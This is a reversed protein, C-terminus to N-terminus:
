HYSKSLIEEFYRELLSDNKRFNVKWLFSVQSKMKILSKSLKQFRIFMSVIKRIKIASMFSKKNWNLQQEMRLVQGNKLTQFYLYDKCKNDKFPVNGSLLKSKIRSIWNIISVLLHCKKRKTKWLLTTQTQKSLRIRLVCLYGEGEKFVVNGLWPLAM